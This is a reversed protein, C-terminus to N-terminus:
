FNYPPLVGTEAALRYFYRLGTQCDEDLNYFINHTLYERISSASLLLQASWETVLAEINAIGRDRSHEFDAAIEDLAAQSEIASERIAWVASIWPQGTLAIWEASLDHYVLAEGTRKERAPGDELAFLAADGILLAANASLLMAELDPVHPVFTAQPNWWKRFITQTYALTARSSTDAAVTKIEALPQAARRILLLSRIDQKSAITCGPLIRLGPTTALAAVPVLGIDAAGPADAPLALRDACQAPTMWEVQYRSALQSRHPEHEFDWM